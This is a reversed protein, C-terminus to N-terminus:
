KLRFEPEIPQNHALLLIRLQEHEHAVRLMGMKGGGPTRGRLGVLPM